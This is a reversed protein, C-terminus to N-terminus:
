MLENMNVDCVRLSQTKNRKNKYRFHGASVSTRRNSNQIINIYLPLESSKQKKGNCIKTLFLIIIQDFSRASGTIGFTTLLEYNAQEIQICEHFFYVWWCVQISECARKLM